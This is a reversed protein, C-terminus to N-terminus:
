PRRLDADAAHQSEVGTGPVDRRVPQRIERDGVAVRRDLLGLGLAADRVHRRDVDRVDAAERRERSGCPAANATSVAPSTRLDSSTAASCARSHVVPRQRSGAPASSRRSLDGQGEDVGVAGCGTAISIPRSSRCRRRRAKATDLVVAAEQPFGNDGFATISEEALRAELVLVSYNKDNVFLLRAIRDYPDLMSARLLEVKTATAFTGRAFARAEEGFAQSYPIDHQVHRTEPCDIGLIRVEEVDNPAGRLRSDHGWRRDSDAESRDLRADFAPAAATQRAKEDGGGRRRRLPAPGRRPRRRGAATRAGRTSRRRFEPSLISVALM